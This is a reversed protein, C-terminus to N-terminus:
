RAVALALDDHDAAYVALQPTGSKEISDTVKGDVCAEMRFNAFVDGSLEDRCEAVALNVIEDFALSIEESAPATMGDVSDAYGHTPLLVASILAIAALSSSRM